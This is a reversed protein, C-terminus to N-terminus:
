AESCDNEPITKPEAFPAYGLFDVIAPVLAAAPETREKEWNRVTDRTVGLHTAVEAQKRRLILRRKRVYQSLSSPEFDHDKPKPAKLRLAVPHL